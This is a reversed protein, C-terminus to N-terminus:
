PETSRAYEVLRRLTEPKTFTVYVGRRGQLRRGYRKRQTLREHARCLRVYQAWTLKHEEGVSVAWRERGVVGWHRGVSVPTQEQKAKSAHDLLYRLWAHAGDDNAQVDIAHVVAGPLGMRSEASFEGNKTKLVVPGCGDIAKHWMERLAVTVAPYESESTVLLHWHLAGRQQIELRWVAGMGSRCLSVVFRDWLLRCAPLELVPGPITLTVGYVRWGPLATHEVMWTRFRRRSAISWGSIAKRKGGSDPPKVRRLMVPVLKCGYRHSKVFCEGKPLIVNDMFRGVNRSGAWGVSEWALCM